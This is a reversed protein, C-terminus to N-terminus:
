GTAQPMPLPGRDRVKLTVAASAKAIDSAKMSINVAYRPKLKLLRGAADFMNGHM